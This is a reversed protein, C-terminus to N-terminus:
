VYTANNDLIAGKILILNDKNVYLMFLINGLILKSSEKRYNVLLIM